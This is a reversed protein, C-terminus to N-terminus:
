PQEAVSVESYDRVTNGQYLIGGRAKCKLDGKGAGADTVVKCRPSRQLAPCILQDKGEEFVM